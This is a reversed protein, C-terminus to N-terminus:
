PVATRNTAIVPVGRAMAELPPLGFGEMLSPFVFLIAGGYLAALLNESTEGTFHVQDAIGLDVALKLAKHEARHRPGALVLHHAKRLAEPLRAYSRMLGAWNKHRRLSGVFLVFGPALGAEALRRDREGDAPCGPTPDAYLPVVSLRDVSEPFERALRQRADESDTAVARSRELTRRVRAHFRRGRFWRALAPRGDPLLPNVDHVTSVVPISCPEIYSQPSWLVDAPTTGPGVACWTTFPEYESRLEGAPRLEVDWGMERAAGCLLRLVRAFSHPPHTWARADFAIRM